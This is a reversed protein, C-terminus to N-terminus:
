KAGLPKAAPKGPEQIKVGGQAQPNFNMPPESPFAAENIKIDAAKKLADVTKQMALSKKIDNRIKDLSEVKANPDRKKMMDSYNKYSDQIEKDTIALSSFDKNERFEKIIVERKAIKGAKEKQLKLAELKAESEAKISMESEKIKQQIEPKDLLGEKEASQQLLEAVILNDVLRRKMEPSQAFMKYEAPLNEIELQVDAATIKKGNVSAMEESKPACGYVVFMMAVIGLLLKKM